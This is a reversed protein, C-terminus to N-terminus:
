GALPGYPAPLGAVPAKARRSRRHVGAAVPCAV